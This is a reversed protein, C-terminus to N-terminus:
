DSIPLFQRLRELLEDVFREARAKLLQGFQSLVEHFSLRAFRNGSTPGPRFVALLDQM